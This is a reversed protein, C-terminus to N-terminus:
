CNINKKCFFFIDLQVQRLKWITYIDYLEEFM